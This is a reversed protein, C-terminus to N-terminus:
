QGHHTVKFHHHHITFEASDVIKADLTVSESLTERRTDFNGM